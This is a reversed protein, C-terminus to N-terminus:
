YYSYGLYVNLPYNLLISFQISYGEETTLAYLYKNNKVIVIYFLFRIQM